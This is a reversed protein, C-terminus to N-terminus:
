AGTDVDAFMNEQIVDDPKRGNELAEIANKLQEMAMMYIPNNKAGMRGVNKFNLEANQLAELVTTSM